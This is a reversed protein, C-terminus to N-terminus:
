NWIDLKLIHKLNNNNKKKKNSRIVIWVTYHTYVYIHPLTYM